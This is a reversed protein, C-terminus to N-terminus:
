LGSRFSMVDWMDGLPAPRFLVLWGLVLLAPILLRASKPLRHTM